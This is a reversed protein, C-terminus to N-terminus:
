AQFPYQPSHMYANFNINNDQGLSHRWISKIRKCFLKERPIELYLSFSPHRWYKARWVHYINESFKDDLLLTMNDLKTALLSPDLITQNYPPSTARISKLDQFRLEQLIYFVLEAPM